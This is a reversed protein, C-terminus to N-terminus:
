SEKMFFNPNILSCIMKEVMVNKVICRYHRLFHFPCRAPTKRDNLRVNLHENLLTSISTSVGGLCVSRSRETDRKWRDDFLNQDSLATSTGFFQPTSISPLVFNKQFKFYLNFFLKKILNSNLSHSSVDETM